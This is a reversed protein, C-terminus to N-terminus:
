TLEVKSSYCGSGGWLGGGIIISKFNSFFSSVLLFIIFMDVEGAVVGSVVAVIAIWGEGM